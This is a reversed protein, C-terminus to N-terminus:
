RSSFPLSCIAFFIRITPPPRAPVITALPSHRCSRSSTDEPLTASVINPSGIGMHILGAQEVDREPTHTLRLQEAVLALHEIAPHPEDDIRGLANIDVFFRDRRLGAFGVIVVEQHDGRARADPRVIDRSHGLAGMPEIIEFTRALHAVRQRVELAALDDDVDIYRM